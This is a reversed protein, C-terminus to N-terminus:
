YFRKAKFKATFQLEVYDWTTWILLLEVRSLNVFITHTLFLLSLSRRHFKRIFFYITFSCAFAHWSADFTTSGLVIAIIIGSSTPSNRPKRWSKLVSAFNQLRLEESQQNNNTTTTSVELSSLINVNTTVSTKILEDLDEIASSIPIEQLFRDSRDIINASM